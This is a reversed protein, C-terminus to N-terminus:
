QHADSVGGALVDEAGALALDVGIAPAVGPGSHGSTGIHRRPKLVGLAHNGVVHFALVDQVDHGEFDLVGADLDVVGDQVAAVGAAAFVGEPRRKEPGDTALRQGVDFLQIVLIQGRGPTIM